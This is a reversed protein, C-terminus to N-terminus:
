FVRQRPETVRETEAEPWQVSAEDLRLWFIEQMCSSIGVNSESAVLRREDNGSDRNRYM